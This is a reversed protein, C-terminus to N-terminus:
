PATSRRFRALWRYQELYRRAIARMSFRREIERRAAAGLERNRRPELTEVLLGALEDADRSTAIRGTRGDDVVYDFVGPIPTLVPPVACSMAELIVIGLGEAQSFLAFADAARIVARKREGSDIRGTMLVHGRLEGEGCRKALQRLFQEDLTSDEERSKPGMLVLVASPSRALLRRFAEVLLDVGKRATLTGIFLVLPGEAQQGADRRLSRRCDEESSPAYFSDDVGCTITVTSEESFGAEVFGRSQEPTYCAVRRHLRLLRMKWRGLSQAAVSAADDSGQLTSSYLTSLGICRALLPVLFAAWGASFVHVADYDRAHRLLHLLVGFLFRVRGTRGAASDGLRLVEVGDLSERETLGPAGLTVVTARVRAALQRLVDHQQLAAGSFAPLYRSIVVLLRLPEDSPFSSNM